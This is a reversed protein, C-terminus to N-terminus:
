PLSYRCPQQYNFKDARKIEDMREQVKEVKMKWFLASKQFYLEKIRSMDYSSLAEFDEFEICDSIHQKLDQFHHTIIEYEQETALQSVETLVM